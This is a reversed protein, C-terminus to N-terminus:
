ESGIQEHITANPFVSRSLERGEGFELCRVYSENESQFRFAFSVAVLRHKMKLLRLLKLELHQLRSVFAPVEREACCKFM